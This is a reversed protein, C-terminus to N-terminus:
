LTRWTAFTLVEQKYVKWETSWEPSEYTVNGARMNAEGSEAAKIVHTELLHLGLKCAHLARKGDDTEIYTKLYSFEQASASLDVDEDSEKQPLSPVDRNTSLSLPNPKRNTQEDFPGISIPLLQLPPLKM